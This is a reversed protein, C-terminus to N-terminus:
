KKLDDCTTGSTKCGDNCSYTYLDVCTANNDCLSKECENDDYLTVGDSDFGLNCSCTFSSDIKSLRANIDCNQISLM